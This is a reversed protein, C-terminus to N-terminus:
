KKFYANQLILTGTNDQYYGTLSPDAIYTNALSYLPFVAHDNMLLDEAQHALQYKKAGEPEKLISQYLDDYQTNKYGPYNNTDTSVFGYLYSSIDPYEAAWSAAVM